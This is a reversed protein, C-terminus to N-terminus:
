GGEVARRLVATGVRGDPDTPLARGDVVISPLPEHTATEDHRERRLVVVCDHLPLRFLRNVLERTRRGPRVFLEVIRKRNPPEM